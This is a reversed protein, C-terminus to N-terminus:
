HSEGGLHLTAAGLQVEARAGADTWLRDGSTLPRNAPLETWEEDEAPAFVVSGQRFSLHGVRGPPDAEEQQAYVSGATVLLLLAALWPLCRWFRRYSASQMARMHRSKM